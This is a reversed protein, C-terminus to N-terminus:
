NKAQIIFASSLTPILAWFGPFLSKDDMVFVTIMIAIIAVTSLLNGVLRDHIKLNLHALIGGIAMQWFRCIPFYFAFKTDVFVSVIAVVFSFGAYAGLALM